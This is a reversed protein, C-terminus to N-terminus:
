GVTGLLIPCVYPASVCGTASNDLMCSAKSVMELVGLFLLLFIFVIYSLNFTVDWYIFLCYRLCKM